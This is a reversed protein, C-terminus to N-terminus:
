FKFNYTIAPIIPLLYVKEAYTVDPNDQDQVFTIQYANHRNYANYISFVWETKWRRGENQPPTFSASLDMRHYSPMREGNRDSYVPVLMGMYEFRGTPMTVANGTTYTWNMGLTWMDSLEYSLLLSVDHTRDYNSPFWEEFIEPIFRESRSLTYSLIGTLQGTQKRAMLELGYARSEGVRLEGELYPNLLLSAHNAFDITNQMDKYYVEASAEIKNDLFNRFYGLAFQDAIQPEVNPSSSFWVDLPSSSTSNTALQIFQFTRNYSAKVSSRENLRYNLGIRPEFGSYTQYRDGKRYLNSDVVDYNSDFNYVTGPGVNQFISYRLGYVAKLQDTISHENSIYAAYELSNTVPMKIEGLVADTGTGRAFGPDLERYTTAIGFQMTNNPNLFYNFDLKGTVDNINSEWLFGFDEAVQELSYNYDSYTVTLNSFLRNSYLHNWRATATSNGWAFSFLDSFGFVDRGNYGSLYVRNNDNIRYNAKFNLDYFYLKTKKLAEDSSALLFLDAYSRRGSLLISGRDKKIPGEVTLRSSVTGIGGLASWRQNNGDKMRIDLVSSLRGGYRAPIGGKFLEMEKIADSNFVSFFGLLHSANYVPSEDLLILNQDVAGGRVHFGSSGEGAAQVGPMLQIAKIIDVEGMFAPIKKIQEMQMNISSMQVSEINEKATNEAEIVAEDVQIGATTLKYDKRVDGNLVVQEEITEYGIFSVKINYTGPELTFSYFGYINTSTGRKLEEVYVTAGILTEGTSGDSITGSIASKQQSFGQSFSIFLLLFSFIWKGTKM